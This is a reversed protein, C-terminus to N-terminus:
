SFGRSECNGTEFDMWMRNRIGLGLRSAGGGLCFVKKRKKQRGVKKWENESENMFRYREDFM